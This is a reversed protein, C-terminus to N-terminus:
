GACFDNLYPDNFGSLKLHGLRINLLPKNRYSPAHPPTNFFTLILGRSTSFSYYTAVKIQVSPLVLPKVFVYGALLSAKESKQFCFGCFSM